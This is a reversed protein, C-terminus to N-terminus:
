PLMDTVTNSVQILFPIPELVQGALRLKIDAYLNGSKLKRTQEYSLSIILLSESISLGDGIRLRLIPSEDLNNSSKIDMLISDYQDWGSSSSLSLNESIGRSIQWVIKNNQITVKSM